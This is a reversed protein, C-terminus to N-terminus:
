ELGPTPEPNVNPHQQALCAVVDQLVGWLCLSPVELGLEMKATVEVCFRTQEITFLHRGRDGWGYLVMDGIPALESAVARYDKTVWQLGPQGAVTLPVLYINSTYDNGSVAQPMYDDIIVPINVGNVPIVMQNRMQRMMDTIAGDNAVPTVAGGPAACHGAIMECPLQRQIAFWMQSTMVWAFEVNHGQYRALSSRNFHIESMLDYLGNGPYNPSQTGVCSDFDKVDPVIDDCDGDLWTPNGDVLDDIITQIGRIERWGNTNTAGNSPNGAWFQRGMEKQMSLGIKQLERRAIGERLLNSDPLLGSPVPGPVGRFDGLFMLNTTTGQCYRTFIDDINMTPSTYVVRGKPFEAFCSELDDPTRGPDCVEDPLDGSDEGLGGTLFPFIVKETNDQRVPILMGLGSTPQLTYNMVPRDGLCCDSFLGNEGSYLLQSTNTLNQTDHKLILSQPRVSHSSQKQYQAILEEKTKM